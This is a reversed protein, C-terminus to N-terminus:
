APREDTAEAPLPHLRPSGSLGPLPPGFRILLVLALLIPIPLGVLAANWFFSADFIGAAVQRGIASDCYPCAAANSASAALLVSAYITSARLGRM